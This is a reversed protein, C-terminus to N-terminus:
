KVGRLAEWVDPDEAGMRWLAFTNLGFEDRAVKVKELISATDEFYMTYQQDSRTYTGKQSSHFHDYIIEPEYTKLITQVQPYTLGTAKNNEDWTYGHTSLGVVIKEKPVYKILQRLVDRYWYLPTQGGPGTLEGSYLYTMVQVTDVVAGIRQYDHALAPDYLVKEPKAYVVVHFELNNKHLADAVTDVFVSFAEKDNSTVAEIDISWGQYNESIAEKLLDEIFQQRNNGDYLLLDISKANEDDGIMPVLPMNKERALSLIQSKNLVTYNVLRGNTNVRYLMPMFVYFDDIVEPLRKFSNIEDWYAMWGVLQAKPPLPTPTPHPSSALTTRDSSIPQRNISLILFTVSCTLVFVGFFYMWTQRLFTM